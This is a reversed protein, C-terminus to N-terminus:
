LTLVKNCAEKALCNDLVQIVDMLVTEEDEVLLDLDKKCVITFSIRALKTSIGRHSSVDPNDSVISTYLYTGNPTAEEHPKM